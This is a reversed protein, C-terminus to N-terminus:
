NKAVLRVKWTWILLLALLFTPNQSKILLFYSLICWFIVKSRGTAVQVGRCFAPTNRNHHPSFTWTFFSNGHPIPSFFDLLESRRENDFHFLIMRRESTIKRPCKSCSHIDTDWILTHTGSLSRRTHSDEMFKLFHPNRQQSQIQLKTKTLSKSTREGKFFSLLYVLVRRTIMVLTLVNKRM